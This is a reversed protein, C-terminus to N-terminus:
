NLKIPTGSVSVPGSGEVTITPAKLTLSSGAEISMTTGAKLKVDRTGEIEITGKSSVKITTRTKNLSIRLGNDSTFVAIGEDGDGDLFVLGAGKKSIFGRRKVAGSAGDVLGDGLRPKDQGNHLGGIVFPRRLDGQDFAVLVEDNVEPLMVAGRDKGAGFQMTRAWDSVYTDSLWPFRLKVRALDEPDNVDTVLATVVGYIPPGAGSGNGTVGGSTLGYLSREQRGSVTGWVIYGDNPDYVHRTTTLTYKGDFPEKVLGLSVAKGARLKPNGRATLELEAFAGAIHEALAKAAADVETQTVYPVDVGVYSRNGFQNALESPTISLTASTTAAAATGIVERKQKMDWGRVSVEKVQEASTVISRFRLLNQGLILQLPDDSALTGKAPAEGSETPKKFQFKGDFVGVEYGIERALGKVFNWDTVNAQSIHDKVATTADITGIPLGVRQAVKKAVDSYTANAYTETVRGRFLRHSHDFGRIVTLTGEPNFEAELATVEGTILPEGGPQGDSFVSIKVTSGIRAKLKDLIERNPDRFSLAFMDPLNLSDDVYGHVLAQDVDDPLASGNVEVKFKSSHQQPPM